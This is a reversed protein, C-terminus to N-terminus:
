DKKNNNQEYSEIKTIVWTDGEGTRISLKCFGRCCNYIYTSFPSKGHYSSKDIIIADKEELEYIKQTLASKSKGPGKQQNDLDQATAPRISLDELVKIKEKTKALFTDLADDYVNCCLIEVAFRDLKGNEDVRKGIEERITKLNM